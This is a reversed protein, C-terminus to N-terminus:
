NEVNIPTWGAPACAACRVSLRSHTAGLCGPAGCIECVRLSRAEAESFAESLRVTIEAPLGQERFYIRLAGLKEKVQRIDFSAAPAALLLQEVALFTDDILQTWGEHGQEIDVVYREFWEPHKAIWKDVIMM